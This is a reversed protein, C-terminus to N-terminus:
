FKRVIGNLSLAILLSILRMNDLVGTSSSSLYTVIKNNAGLSTYSLTLPETRAAEMYGYCRPYEDESLDECEFKESQSSVGASAEFPGKVNTTHNFSFEYYGNM